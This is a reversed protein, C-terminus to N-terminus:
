PTDAIVVTISGSFAGTASLTLTTTGGGASDAASFYGAVGGSTAGDTIVPAGATKVYNGAPTAFTGTKPGAEATFTVTVIQLAM